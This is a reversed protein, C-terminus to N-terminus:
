KIVYYVMLNIFFVSFGIIFGILIGILVGKWLTARELYKLEESVDALNVSVRSLFGYASNLNTWASNLENKRLERECDELAKICKPIFKGEEEQPAWLKERLARMENILFVQMLKHSTHTHKLMFSMTDSLFALRKTAQYVTKEYEERLM